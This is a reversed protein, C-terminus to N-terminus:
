SSHKEKGQVFILRQAEKQVNHLCKHSTLVNKALSFMINRERFLQKFPILNPFFSSFDFLRPKYFINFTPSFLLLTGQCVLFNVPTTIFHNNACNNAAKDRLLTLVHCWSQSPQQEVNTGILCNRSNIYSQNCSYNPHSCFCCLNLSFLRNM